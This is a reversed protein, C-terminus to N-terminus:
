VPKSLVDFEIPRKIKGASQLHNRRLNFIIEDAHMLPILDAHM